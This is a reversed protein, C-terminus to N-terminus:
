AACAQPKGAHDYLMAVFADFVKQMQPAKYPFVAPPDMNHVIATNDAEFVLLDGNRTEACDIQFYDLGIRNIAESLAVAHRAAFEGDFTAMFHAEEARKGESLTMDANLYWIKWEDSIAMHCAYPVGDVCVLRYKRFLGDSSAYDVFRSIFFEAEPRQALYGAIDSVNELKALGRGAHSGIPRVILPFGGDDLWRPLDMESLAALDPRSLRATMPIELGSVSRLLRYLRDRDLARIRMAPNLVKRPWEATLREIDDLTAQTKDDDPAVVIAVDHAPLPDPLPKGPVVYLTTLEVDSGELLFEIPTNGGIDMEAALALVRLKPTPTACPSRYLRQYDLVDRQIALGTAQDGLLQAIISLDMGIGSGKADDTVKEMMEHWLPRLNVGNFAMKTLQAVGMRDVRFAEAASM